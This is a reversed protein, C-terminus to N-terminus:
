HVESIFYILQIVKEYNLARTYNNIQWFFIKWFKFIKFENQYISIKIQPQHRNEGGRLKKNKSKSISPIGYFRALSIITWIAHDMDLNKTVLKSLVKQM